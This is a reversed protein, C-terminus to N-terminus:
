ALAEAVADVGLERMCRFHGLPCRERGHLTCPQCPENRCLVTHGEGAPAFGLVPSTSGFLAVVRTGRAAAVHMLGSDNAVAARCHSLWAAMRPLPETCWRSAPDDEIQASLQPLARREAELTFCIVPQGAGQLRSHLQAWHTEPWQKTAHRAGPCFAVAASNSAQAAVRDAAWAEADEGASLVPPGEVEVGLSQLAGAFRATAAPIPAPHSWRAHVWQARRMRYSPPRLVPISQRFTLVRSRTNGQLDLILDCDELEASMSVLDEIRREDPELLRVHDIATDHAVVDRYESKTWYTLHAGPWRRRLAHVVPLTLVVDGLSSLRIIAIRRFGETPPEPARANV